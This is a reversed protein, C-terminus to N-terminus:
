LVVWQITNHLVHGRWTYKLLSVHKYQGGQVSMCPNNHLNAPLSANYKTDQTQIRRM